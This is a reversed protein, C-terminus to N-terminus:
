RMAARSRSGVAIVLRGTEVPGEGDVWYCGESSQRSDGVIDAHVAVLGVEVVEVGGEVPEAVGFM